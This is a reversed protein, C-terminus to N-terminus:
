PTPPNPMAELKLSNAVNLMIIYELCARGYQTEALYYNDWEERLSKISTAINHKRGVNMVINYREAFQEFTLPTM